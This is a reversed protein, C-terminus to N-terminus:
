RPVVAEELDTKSELLQKGSSESKFIQPTLIKVGLHDKELGASVNLPHSFNAHMFIQRNTWKNLTVNLIQDKEYPDSDPSILKM